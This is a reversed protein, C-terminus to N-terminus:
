TRRIEWGLSAIRQQGLCSSGENVVQVFRLACFFGLGPEWLRCTLYVHVTERSM